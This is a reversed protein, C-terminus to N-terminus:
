KVRQYDTTLYFWGSARVRPETFEANVADLREILDEPYSEYRLQLAAYADWGEPDYIMELSVQAERSFEETARRAMAVM